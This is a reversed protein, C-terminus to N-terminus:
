LLKKLNKKAQEEYVSFITSSYISEREFLFHSAFIKSGEKWMEDDVHSYERRVNNRYKEFEKDAASLIYLDIDCMISKLLSYPENNDTTTFSYRKSHNTARILDVIVNLDLYALTGNNFFPNLLRTAIKASMEEDSIDISKNKYKQEKGKTTYVMDHFILAIKITIFENVNIYSSLQSWHEFLTEICYIIHHINHYFRNKDNYLSLYKWIKYIDDIKREPCNIFISDHLETLLRSRYFENINKLEESISMIDNFSVDPPLGNVIYSLSSDGSNFDPIDM